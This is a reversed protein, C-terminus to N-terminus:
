LHKFNFQLFSHEPTLIKPSSPFLFPPTSSQALSSPEPGALLPRM